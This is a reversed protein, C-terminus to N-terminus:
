FTRGSSSMILLSKLRSNECTTIASQDNMSSVRTGNAFTLRCWACMHKNHWLLDWSTFLYLPASTKRYGTCLDALMPHVPWAERTSCFVRLVQCLVGTHSVRIVMVEATVTWFTVKTDPADQCNCSSGRASPIYTDPPHTYRAQMLLLGRLYERTLKTDTIHWFYGGYINM